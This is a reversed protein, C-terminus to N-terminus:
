EYIQVVLRGKEPNYSLSANQCYRSVLSKAKAYAPYWTELVSNVQAIEAQAAKDYVLRGTAYYQANKWAITRHQLRVCDEEKVIDWGPLQLLESELAFKLFEYLEDSTKIAVQPLNIYGKVKVSM